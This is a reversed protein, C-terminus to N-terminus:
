KTMLVVGNVTVSITAKGAEVPLPEAAAPAMAAKFRPADAMAFPQADQTNVSVEGIQYGAYGFQRAYDAARAKFRAIAQATVESEHKERGERSLNFSVRAINMTTIRGSLQAIAQQDRGEVLLEVSGQWGAIGNGGNKYRPYISFNGTQVEVQGPKAIKRAETLAADLAAKLAAQVANADAGDKSTSFALSITDRAVELQATAGLNLADRRPATDALASGSLLSAGILLTLFQKM